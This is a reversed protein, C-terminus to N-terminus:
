TMWLQLLAFVPAPSEPKPIEPAPVDLASAELDLVRPIQPEPTGMGVIDIFEEPEAEAIDEDNMDEDDEDYSDMEGLSVDGDSTQHELDEDDDDLIVVEPVTPAAPM